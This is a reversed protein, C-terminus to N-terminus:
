TWWADKPLVGNGDEDTEISECCNKDEMVDGYSSVYFSFYGQVVLAAFAFLVPCLVDCHITSNGLRVHLPWTSIKWYELKHQLRQFIWKLQQKRTIHWGIPYGLHKVVDRSHVVQGLWLISHWDGNPPM